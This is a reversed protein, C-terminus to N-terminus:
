MLHYCGSENDVDSHKHPVWSLSVDLGNSTTSDITTHTPTTVPLWDSQNAVKTPRESESLSHTSSEFSTSLSVVKPTSSITNVTEYQTSVVPPVLERSTTNVTKRAELLRMSMNMEEAQSAVYKELSHLHSQVMEPQTVDLDNSTGNFRRSKDAPEFGDADAHKRKHSVGHALSKNSTQIPRSESENGPSFRVIHRLVDNETHQVQHKEHVGHSQKDAPQLPPYKVVSSSGPLAFGGSPMRNRDIHKRNMAPEDISSTLREGNRSAILETLVATSPLSAITNNEHVNVVPKMLEPMEKLREVDRRTAGTYTLNDEVVGSSVSAIGTPMYTMLPPPNASVKHQQQQQVKKVHSTAVTSTVALSSHNNFIDSSLSSNSSPTLEQTVLVGEKSKIVLKPVTRSQSAPADVSAIPALVTRTPKFGSSQKLVVTHLGGKEDLMDNSHSDCLSSEESSDHLERERTLIASRLQKSNRTAGSQNAIQFPFLNLANQISPNAGSLLLTSLCPAFMDSVALIHLATNGSSNNSNLVIDKIHHPLNKSLQGISSILAAYFENMVIGQSMMYSECALLLPTLRENDKVSLSVILLEVLRKLKTKARHAIGQHQFCEFMRLCVRHLATHGESTQLKPDFGDNVLFSVASLRGLM